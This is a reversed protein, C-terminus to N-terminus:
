TTASQSLELLFSLPVIILLHAADISGDRLYFAQIM